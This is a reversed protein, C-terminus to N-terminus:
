LMVQDHSLSIHKEAYTTFKDLIWKVDFQNLIDENRQHLLQSSTGDIRCTEQHLNRRQWRGKHGLVGKRLVRRSLNQGLNLSHRTRRNNLARNIWGGTGAFVGFVFAVSVTGLAAVPGIAARPATLNINANLQTM